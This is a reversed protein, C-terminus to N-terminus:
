RLLKMTPRVPAATDGLSFVTAGDADVVALAGRHRGEVMMGRLVEVLVPNSMQLTTAGNRAARAM